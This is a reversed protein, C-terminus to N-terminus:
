PVRVTRFYRNSTGAISILMRLKGGTGSFVAGYNNWLTLDGSAQLQYRVGVSTGFVLEIATLVEILEPSSESNKPDSHNAVEVGDNYGDGDTDANLPNAGLRIEDGDSLGDHDTDASGPDTAYDSTEQDDRLGDSDSDRILDSEIQPNDFYMEDFGYFNEGRIWIGKVNELTKLFTDKSVAPGNVRNLQWEAENLIVEYTVWSNLPLVKLFRKVLLTGNRGWILVDADSYWAGPIKGAGLTYKLRKDYASTIDGLFSVPAVFFFGGVFGNSTKADFDRFYLCEGWTPSNVASPVFIPSVFSNTDFKYPGNGFTDAINIVTWGDVRGNSFTSIIDARSEIFLPFAALLLILRLTLIYWQSALCGKESDRTYNM